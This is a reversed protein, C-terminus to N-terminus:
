FPINDDYEESGVKHYGGFFVVKNTDKGKYESIEIDANASRGIMMKPDDANLGNTTDFGFANFISKTRSALEESFIINDFVLKGFFVGETAISLHLNWMEKGNKDVMPTGDKKINKCDQVEVLYTGPDILKYSKEEPLEKDSLVKPM